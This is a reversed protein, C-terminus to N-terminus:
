GSRGVEVIGVTRSHPATAAVWFRLRNLLGPSWLGRALDLDAETLGRHNVMVLTMRPAPWLRISATSRVTPWAPLDLEIKVFEGEVEGASVGSVGLEPVQWRVGTDTQETANGTWDQLAAPETLGRFVQAATGRQVIDSVLVSHTGDSHLFSPDQKSGPRFTLSM